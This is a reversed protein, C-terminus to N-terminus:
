NTKTTKNAKRERQKRDINIMFRLDNELEALRTPRAEWDVQRILPLLRGEPSEPDIRQLEAPRYGNLALLYDLDAVLVDAVRELYAAEPTTGRVWKSITGQSVGVASAMRAQSYGQDRMERALWAGFGRMNRKADSGNMGTLISSVYEM